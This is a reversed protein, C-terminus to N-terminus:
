RQSRLMSQSMMRKSPAEAVWPQHTQLTIHKITPNPTSVQSTTVILAYKKGPSMDFILVASSFVM